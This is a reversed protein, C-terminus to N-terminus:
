IKVKFEPPYVKLIRKWEASMAESRVPCQDAMLMFTMVGNKVRYTYAGDQGCDFVFNGGFDNLFIWDRSIRYRGLIDKQGDGDYDVEYTGDKRFILIQSGLAPDKFKWSGIINGATGNYEEASASGAGILVLSGMLFCFCLIKMRLIM